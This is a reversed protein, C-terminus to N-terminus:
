IQLRWIRGGARYRHASATGVMASAVTDILHIPIGRIGVPVEISDRLAPFVSVIAREQGLIANSLSSKLLTPRVPMALKIGGRLKEGVVVLPM